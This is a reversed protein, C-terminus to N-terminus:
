IGFRQKFKARAKLFEKFQDHITECIVPRKYGCKNDTPGVPLVVLQKINKKGECAAYAALQRMDYAGTKWDMISLKEEFNGMLDYEGAYFHEENYVIVHMKKVKIRKRYHKIFQRHSCDQWSLNLSGGSVIAIQEKLEPVKLPDQWKGTEFYLEILKEVITGRAAYQNLEDESIHWEKDWDLISTVSPYKTGNLQHFKMRAYARDLVETKARRETTTFRDALIGEIHDVVKHINARSKPEVLMHFNVRYNEFPAIAIVGGSDIGLEKVKFTSTIPQRKKKAKKKAKKETKKKAM